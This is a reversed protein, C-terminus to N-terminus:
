ALQNNKGKVWRPTHGHARLVATQWAKKISGIREGVENGFVYADPGLPKGDPGVRRMELVDALRSDVPIERTSNTKTKEAPLVLTQRKQGKPGTTVRVDKVQLGLLEGSRCGLGM